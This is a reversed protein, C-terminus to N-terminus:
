KFGLSPVGISPTFVVNGSKVVFYADNKLEITVSNPYIGPMNQERWGSVGALLEAYYINPSWVVEMGAGDLVDGYYVNPDQGAVATITWKGAPIDDGIKYVGQPVNVEQWEDTEWMAFQIQSRLEALEALSLGTFVGLEISQEEVTNVFMFDWLMDSLEQPTAKEKKDGLFSFVTDTGNTLFAAANLRSDLYGCCSLGIWDGVSITTFDTVIGNEDFAGSLLLEFMPEYEVFSVNDNEFVTISFVRTGAGNEDIYSTTNEGVQEIWGDPVSYEFGNMGRLAKTEAFSVSFLFLMVCLLGILRRLAGM